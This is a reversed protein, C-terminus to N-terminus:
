KKKAAKKIDKEVPKVTEQIFECFRIMETNMETVVKALANLDNRIGKISNELDEIAEEIDMLDEDEYLKLLDKEKEEKVEKEEIVESELLIDVLEPIFKVEMHHHVVGTETDKTFDVEIMDGFQVEDDTGAMFFKKM